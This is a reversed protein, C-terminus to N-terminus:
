KVRKLWVERWYCFELRPCGGVVRACMCLNGDLLVTGEVKRMQGSAESILRELRSRVRYRRGCFKKLEIDCVLGRNRGKTDLTARMEDQTRIEVLEGPQLNLDGVPTRTLTGALRPRGVLRDRIKRYLPVLILAAMEPIKVARSRLDRLCKLFIGSRTLQHPETARILETSQCVYRDPAAKTRLLPLFNATGGAPASAPSEADVRRLWAAKWLLMCARQCGDHDAGSCRLGELLVVDNNRFERVLYQGGPVEVCTKEARRIVRYRRGCHSLMEP